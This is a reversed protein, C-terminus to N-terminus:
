PLSLGFNRRIKEKTSRGTQHGIIMVQRGNLSGFGSVIAADDAYRRDGHIERFGEILHQIYDETYPRKPHRAVLTKQWPTLSAFVRARVAELQRQLEERQERTRDTDGVGSLAEIRRELDLIPEEFSEHEM